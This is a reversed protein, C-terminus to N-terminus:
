DPLPQGRTEPALLILGLGVLYILSMVSCALPFGGKITIDGLLRDGAFVAMLSGTQLAGVAAIIRGFNFSFGQGTARVNTRFLEPLYLPLWGYFSATIGGAIFVTVLFMGGYGTNLQYFVLSSILSGACLLAYTARRGIMDGVLAGLMTGIIAGLASLMGTYSRAESRAAARDNPSMAAAEPSREVLQDAWPAAWQLSGWTGLLAVGSLCAGLLMRRLTPGTGHHPDRNDVSARRLYRFIPYSYGGIAVALGLLSGAIRVAMSLDTQPAWLYMILLPGSAGILVGLLDV